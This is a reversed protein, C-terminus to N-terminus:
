QREERSLSVNLPITEGERVQVNSSFSQYGERRIVITHSGASVLVNLRDSGEPGQWREGDILVDAGTPQVRISLTGSGREVAAEAGPGTSPEPAPATMPPKSPVPRPDQQEDPQLPVMTHRIKYTAGPALHIRQRVSRYGQLYLEIDYTGPPLRLGQFSGDFDDVIGALAGDVYVETEKPAVLLRARSAGDYAVGYYPYPYPYFWPSYGWWFSAYFPSAYYPRYHYPRYYYPHYYPRYYGGSVAVAHASGHPRTPQAGAARPTTVPLGVALVLVPVTLTRPSTM